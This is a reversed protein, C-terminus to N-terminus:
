QPMVEHYNVVLVNQFYFHIIDPYTYGVRAMEMAGEQCLGVGHGFGRGKFVIHNENDYIIQFFASKLDFDDRIKRMPISTKKFTYLKVRGPNELAYDGPYTGSISAGKSRLYGTWKDLPIQESWSHNKGSACFPDRISVLCPHNTQWAIEASCTLGGCNSHYPTTILKGSMDTLVMGSTQLTAEYIQRNLLSKGKYAQCHVSSCLNYNDAGHRYMNKIAYTRILIAQAKYYEPHANAGGEAEIVAAVYKELDVDNVIQFYNGATRLILDGDYDASALIPSVSKLQFTSEHGTHRVEIKSFYGIKKIRSSLHIKNGDITAFFIDGPQIEPLCADDAILDFTGQVVSFVLSSIHYDPYLGIRIDQAYDKASHMTLLLFQLSIGLILRENINNLPKQM